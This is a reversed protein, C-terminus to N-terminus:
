IHYQFLAVAIEVLLAFRRIAVQADAAGPHRQRAAEFPRIVIEDDGVREGILM